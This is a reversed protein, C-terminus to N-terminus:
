RGIEAVAISDGFAVGNVFFAFQEGQKPADAKEALQVTIQTGGLQAFAAPAHLVQDVRVIATRQDIPLDSMTAAGLREVTGLFSIPAEKMLKVVPDDPM